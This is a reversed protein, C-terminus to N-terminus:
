RRHWDPFFTVQAAIARGSPDRAPSFRVYQETLQCMLSDAAAIGSSRVVRCSSVSGDAEVKISVGVRGSSTGFASLRRYQSDPIKSIKRAPTFGGGGGGGSGNGSGGAGTGNGATGAGAPNANGNGAVTPASQKAPLPIVPKPAAVPKPQAAKAPAGQERKASHQQVKPPPPPPPPPPKPLEVNFTQLGRVVATVINVHLGAIVGAGLLGTAIVAATMAKWRDRNM